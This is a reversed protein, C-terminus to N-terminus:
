LVLLDGFRAMIAELRRRQKPKLEGMLADELEQWHARLKKRVESGKVSLVIGPILEGRAELEVRDVLGLDVLRQLRPELADASLGTGACLMENALPGAKPLALIIADDGAELGLEGLPRLLTHRAMQGAEILRYLTTQSLDHAM